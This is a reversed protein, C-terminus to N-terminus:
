ASPHRRALMAEEREAEARLRRVEALLREPHSDESFHHTPDHITREFRDAQARKTAIDRRVTDQSM